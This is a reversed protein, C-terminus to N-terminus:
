ELEKLLSRMFARRDTVQTQFVLEVRDFLKEFGETPNNLFSHLLEKLRTQASPLYSRFEPILLLNAAKSVDDSRNPDLDRLAVCDEDSAYNVDFVKILSLLDFIEKGSNM